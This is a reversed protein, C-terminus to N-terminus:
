CALAKREADTLDEFRKFIVVGGQELRAYPFTPRQIIRKDEYSLGTYKEHLSTFMDFLRKIELDSKKTFPGNQNLKVQYLGNLEKFTSLSTPNSVLSASVPKQNETQTQIQSSIPEKISKKRNDSSKSYEENLEQYLQNLEEQEKRARQSYPIGSKRLKEYRANKQLYATNPDPYRSIDKHWTVKRQTLTITDSSTRPRRIESNPGFEKEFYENSYLNVQYPQPFRESRANPMVPSQFYLVFDSNQYKELAENSIVVGDIWVAYEEKNKWKEFIIQDPNKKDPVNDMFLLKSREEETLDDYSKYAYEMNENEILIYANRYYTVMKDQGTTNQKQQSQGEYVVKRVDKERLLKQVDAVFGMAVEPDASIRALTNVTTKSDILEALQSVEIIQGDFKIKGDARLLLQIEKSAEDKNVVVGSEKDAEAQAIVKESFFYILAALVPIVSFIKIWKTSNATKRRMMEFRKKTLSFNLSSALKFNQGSVMMSLLQSQYLELTTAQLAAQDAIFEHNLKIAQRAFYLGPHFWFFVLLLEIFLVDWSHKERLHTREHAFIAETLKGEEFYTKSVFIYKLFTFPLSNEALLVLTEGRYSFHLNRSIKDSLIRINRVFRILFVLTIILYLTWFFATWTISKEELFGLNKVMPISESNSDTKAYESQGVNELIEFGGSEVLVPVAPVEIVYIPILFSIVVSFLLFFRNFRHMSERQLLFQHGIILILLCAISKLLYLTM